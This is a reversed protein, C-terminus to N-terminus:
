LKLERRRFLMTLYGRPTRLIFGNVTRVGTEGKFVTGGWANAHLWAFGWAGAVHSKRERYQWMPVKMFAGQMPLCLRLM